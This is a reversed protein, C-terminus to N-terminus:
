RESRTTSTRKIRGKGASVVPGTPTQGATPTPAALRPRTPNLEAHSRRRAAETAQQQRRNVAEWDQKSKRAGKRERSTSNRPPAMEVGQAAAQRAKKALIAVRRRQLNDIWGAPPPWPVGWEALTAQTWGTDKRAQTIEDRTPPLILGLQARINLPHPEQKM